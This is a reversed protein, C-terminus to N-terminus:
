LNLFLLAPLIFARSFGLFLDLKKNMIIKILDLSILKRAEATIVNTSTFLQDPELRSAVAAGHRPQYRNRISTNYTRRVRFGRYTSGSTKFASLISIKM